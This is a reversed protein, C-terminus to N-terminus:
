FSITRASRVSAVLTKEVWGGSDIEELCFPHNNNAEDLLPGNARSPKVKLPGHHRVISAAVTLFLVKLM